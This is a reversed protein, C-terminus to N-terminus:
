ILVPCRPSQACGIPIVYSIGEGNAYHTFVLKFDNCIIIQLCVSLSLSFFLHGANLALRLHLYSLTLRVISAKDLSETISHHLPLQNALQNFM